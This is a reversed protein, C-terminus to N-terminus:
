LQLMPLKKRTRGTQHVVHRKEQFPKEKGPSSSVGATITNFIHEVGKAHLEIEKNRGNM